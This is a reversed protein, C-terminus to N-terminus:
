ELHEPRQRAEFQELEETLLAGPFEPDARVTLPQQFQQEGVILRVLYSGPEVPPGPRDAAARGAGPMTAPQTRAFEEGTVKGDKDSDARELLRAVLRGRQDDGADEKTLSGDQNADLRAFFQQM